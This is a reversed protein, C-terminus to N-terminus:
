RGAARLQQGLLLLFFASLLEEIRPAERDDPRLLRLHERRLHQLRLVGVRRQQQRLQQPHQLRGRVRAAQAAGAIHHVLLVDYLGFFTFSQILETTFPQRL